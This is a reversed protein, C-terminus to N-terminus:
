DENRRGGRKSLRRCWLLYCMTIVFGGVAGGIHAMNNVNDGRFGEYLIYCLVFVIKPLTIENYKGKFWALLAVMAGVLGMIAGSAGISHTFDRMVFDYVASFLSGCIGSLMYLAFYKGHGYFKEIMRGLALLLVMNGALHTVNIHLFMSTFIRYCRSIDLLDLASFDGINYLLQGTTACIIFLLTNLCVLALTVFPVYESQVYIGRGDDELLAEEILEKMDFFDEPENEYIMLQKSEADVLWCPSISVVLNRERSPQNTVVCNLIRCALIGRDRIARRLSEHCRSVEEKTVGDLGAQKILCLGIMQTDIMKCFFTVQPLASELKQYGNEILLTQLRDM